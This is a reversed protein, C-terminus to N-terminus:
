KNSKIKVPVKGSGQKILVRNNKKVDQIIAQHEQFDLEEDTDSLIVDKKTNSTFGIVKEKLKIKIKKELDEILNQVQNAMPDQLQGEHQILSQNDTRPSFKKSPRLPAPKKQAITFLNGVNGHVLDELDNYEGGSPAMNDKLATNKFSAEAKKRASM